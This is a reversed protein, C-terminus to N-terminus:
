LSGVCIHHDNESVAMRSKINQSLKQLQSTSRQRSFPKPNQNVPEPNLFSIPDREFSTHLMIHAEYMNRLSVIGFDDDSQEFDPDDPTTLIM